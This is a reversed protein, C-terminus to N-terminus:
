IEPLIKDLYASRELSMKTVCNNVTVIYAPQGPEIEFAELACNSDRLKLWARQSEKLKTAFDGGIKPDAEYQNKIRAMLEKYSSNLRADASDRASKACADVEQSVTSEICEAKAPPLCLSGLLLFPIITKKM